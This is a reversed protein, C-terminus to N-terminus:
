GSLTDPGKATCVWQTMGVPALMLATSSDVRPSENQEPTGSLDSREDIRILAASVGDQSTGSMLGAALHSGRSIRLTIKKM